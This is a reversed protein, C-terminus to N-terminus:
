AIPMPVDIGLFGTRRAGARMPSRHRGRRAWSRHAHGWVLFLRSWAGYGFAQWEALKVTRMLNREENNMGIHLPTGTSGATTMYGQPSQSRRVFEHPRDQIAQRTLVPISHFEDWHTIAKPAQGDAVLGAYYPVDNVADAWVRTIAALQRAQLADSSEAPQQLRAHAARMDHRVRPSLLRLPFRM